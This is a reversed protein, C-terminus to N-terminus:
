SLCDRGKCIGAFCLRFFNSFMIIIIIQFKNIKCIVFNLRPISVEYVLSCGPYDFDDSHPKRIREPHFQLEVLFKSKQSNHSNPDYFGEILGDPAFAMPVFGNALKKVGQRHYSSVSIDRSRHCLSDQFWCHLPTNEVLKIAHRHGDYESYNTHSVKHHNKHACFKRPSNKKSTKTFPVEVPWM